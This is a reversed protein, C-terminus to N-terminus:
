HKPTTSQAYAIAGVAVAFVCLVFIVFYLSEAPM